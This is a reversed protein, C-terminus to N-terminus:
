EMIQTLYEGIEQSTMVMKTDLINKYSRGTSRHVSLRNQLEVGAKARLM